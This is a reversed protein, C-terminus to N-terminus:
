WEGALMITLVRRTKSLDTPDDSGMQYDKDYHHIKWFIQEGHFKFAGFDHEVHPDNEDTFDDFQAVRQFLMETPIDLQKLLHVVGATLVRQGPVNPDGRRFADNLAAIKTANTSAM